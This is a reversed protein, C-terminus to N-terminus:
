SYTPVSPCSLSYRIPMVLYCVDDNRREMEVEEEIKLKISLGFGNEIMVVM